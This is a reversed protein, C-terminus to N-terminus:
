HLLIFALHESLDAGAIGHELLRSVRSINDAANGMSQRPHVQGAPGNSSGDGQSEVDELGWSNADADDQLDDQLDDEAEEGPRMDVDANGEEELARKNQRIAKATKKFRFPVKDAAQRRTWHKLIADADERRLHYNQKLTVHKPL